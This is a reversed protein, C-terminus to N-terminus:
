YKQINIGPYFKKMNYSVYVLSILLGVIEMITSYFTSLQSFQSILIAIIIYYILRTHFFPNNKKNQKILTAVMFLYVSLGALGSYLLLEVYFNESLTIRATQVTIDTAAFTGLGGEKFGWGFIPKLIWLRNIIKIWDEYRGSVNTPIMSNNLNTAEIRGLMMTSYAQAIFDTKTTFIFIIITVSCAVLTTRLSFLKEKKIVFLITIIYTGLASFSGTLLVFLTHFSFLVIYKSEKKLSYLYLCILCMITFFIGGTNISGVTSLLREGFITIKGLPWLLNITTNLNGPIFRLVGIIGSILGFIVIYEFINKIYKYYYVKGKKIQLLFIYTLISYVLYFRFLYFKEKIDPNSSALFDSVNAMLPFISVSIFFVFFYKDLSNFTFFYDNKIIISHALTFFFLILLVVEYFSFGMVGFIEDNLGSLLIIVAFLIIPILRM